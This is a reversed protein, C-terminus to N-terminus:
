YTGTQRSSAFMERYFCDSAGEGGGFPFDQSRGQCPFDDAGRTLM